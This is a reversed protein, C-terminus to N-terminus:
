QSFLLSNIRKVKTYPLLRSLYAAESNVKEFGVEELEGGLEARNPFNSISTGLYLYADRDGTVM